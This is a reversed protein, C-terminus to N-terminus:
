SLRAGQTGLHCAADEDRYARVKEYIEATVYKCGEM